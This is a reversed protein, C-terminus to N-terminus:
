LTYLVWWCSILDPKEAACISAIKDLFKLVFCKYMPTAAKLVLMIFDKTHKDDLNM